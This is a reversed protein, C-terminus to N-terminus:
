TGKREHPECHLVCWYVVLGAASAALVIGPCHLCGPCVAHRDCSPDACHFLGIMGADHIWEHGHAFALAVPVGDIPARSGGASASVVVPVVTEPALRVTM